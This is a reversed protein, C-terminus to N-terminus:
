AAMGLERGLWFMALGLALSVSVNIAAEARRGDEGLQRTQLMWTSFTTLSGLLGTALLRDADDDVAVGAVLGLLLAGLLNVALIGVPLTAAVRRTVVDDLVVRAVAGVGGLLGIGAWLAVSM